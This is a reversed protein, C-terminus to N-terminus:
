AFCPSLMWQPIWMALIMLACLAGLLLAAEAFFARRLGSGGDDAALQPQAIGLSRWAPVLTALVAALFAAHVWHAPSHSQSACSWGVLAYAIGQDALVLSPALLLAPWSRM